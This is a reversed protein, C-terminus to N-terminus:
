TRSDCTRGGRETDVSPRAATKMDVDECKWAADVSVRLCGKEEPYECEGRSPLDSLNSPSSVRALWAHVKSAMEAETFRKVIM